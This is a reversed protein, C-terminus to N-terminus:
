WCAKSEADIDPVVVGLRADDAHSQHVHLVGVNVIHVENLASAALSARDPLDRGGTPLM